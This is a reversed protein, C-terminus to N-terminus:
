HKDTNQKNLSDIFSQFSGMLATNCKSYFRNTNQQCTLQWPQSSLSTFIVGLNFWLKCFLEWVDIQVVPQTQNSTSVGELLYGIEAGFTANLSVHRNFVFARRKKRSVINVILKM